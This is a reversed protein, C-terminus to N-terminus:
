LIPESNHNHLHYVKVNGFVNRLRQQTTQRVLWFRTSVQLHPPNTAGGPQSQWISSQHWSVGINHCLVHSCHFYLNIKIKSLQFIKKRGVAHALKLKNKRENRAIRYILIGNGYLYVLSITLLLPHWNFELKLDSQGSFGGLYHGTLWDSTLM